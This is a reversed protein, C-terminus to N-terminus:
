QMKIAKRNQVKSMITIVLREREKESELNIQRRGVSRFRDDSQVTLLNVNTMKGYRPRKLIRIFSGFYTM